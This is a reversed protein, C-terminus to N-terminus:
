PTVFSRPWNCSSLGCDRMRSSSLFAVADLPGHHIFTLLKVSVLRVEFTGVCGKRIIVRHLHWVLPLAEPPVDVLSISGKRYLKIGRVSAWSFATSSLLVTDQTLPFVTRGRFNGGQLFPVEQLAIPDFAYDPDGFPINAENGASDVLAISDIFYNARPIGLEIELTGHKICNCTSDVISTLDAFNSPLPVEAQSGFFLQYTGSTATAELPPDSVGDRDLLSFIQCPM